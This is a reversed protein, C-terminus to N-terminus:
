SFDQSTVITDPLSANDPVGVVGLRYKTGPQLPHNTYDGYREGDGVDFQPRM